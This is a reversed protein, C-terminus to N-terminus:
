NTLFQNNSINWHTSVYGSAAGHDYYDNYGCDFQWIKALSPCSTVMRSGTTGDDYCMLDNQDNCHYGGTAHPASRQVAGLMHGFEHPEAYNWCPRWIVAYSPGHNNANTQAHSDDVMLEAMGCANDSDASIIYKRDALAFGAKAVQSIINSFDMGGSVPVAAIALSCNSGTLYRIQQGSSSSSVSSNYVVANTRRAISAFKSRLDGLRNPASAKYAYVWRVRTGDTGNGLCPWNRGAVQGLSDKSGVNSVTVLPPTGDPVTAGPESPMYKKDYDDQKDLEKEITKARERVDIGPPGPDPHTCIHANTTAHSRPHELEFAEGCPGKTDRKLDKYSLGRAANENPVNGSLAFSDVLLYVGIAGFSVATLLLLFKGRFFPVTKRSTITGSTRVRAKTTVKRNTKKAM